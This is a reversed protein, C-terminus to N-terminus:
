KIVKKIDRVEMGRKRELNIFSNMALHKLFCPRGVKEESGIRNIEIL